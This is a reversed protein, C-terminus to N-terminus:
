VLSTFIICLWNWQPDLSAHSNSYVLGMCIPPMQAQHGGTLITVHYDIQIGIVKKKKSAMQIKCWIEMLSYNKWIFRELKTSSRLQLFWHVTLSIQTPFNRVAVHLQLKPQTSMIGVNSKGFVEDFGM